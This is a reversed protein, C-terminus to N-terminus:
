GNTGLWMPHKYIHSGQLNKHVSLYLDILVSQYVIKLWRKIKEYEFAKSNERESWSFGSIGKCIKRRKPMEKQYKYWNVTIM